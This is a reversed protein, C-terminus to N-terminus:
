RSIYLLMINVIYMLIIGASDWALFLTKKEARYTLGIVAVVTMVIASLASILHAHSATALLPGQTFFMDDLALIFINFINSGFLNGIALDIADIKVASISVVVEPLSTSFAIFINGVFSQGLGTQEALEVGIIPLFVAAVIVGFANVAYNVAASRVSIHEYKLEVAREKIFAAIRKREYSYIIRVATFYVAIVLLTSTGIWGLPALRFGLALSICVIGLLLIGFGASLVHGEHAKTSIPMPRYLADLIALILMNFVCSGLIDGIAIDPARAFTVSGLGTVLEPLSTVTAMLVVGIWTRGMGTKEAIIDGYRSLKYGCFVILASCLIFELWSLVM